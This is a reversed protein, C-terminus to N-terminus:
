EDVGRIFIKGKVNKDEPFEILSAYSNPDILTVATESGKAKSVSWEIDRIIFSGAVDAFDDAVRVLANLVWPVKVGNILASHGAFTPRYEFGNSKRINGEWLARKEATGIGSSSENQFAYVRGERIEDDIAEPTVGQHTEAKNDQTGGATSLTTTSGQAGCVYRNFRRSDDQNMSCRKINNFQGGIQNLAAVGPMSDVDPAAQDFYLVGDGLTYVLLQRKRAYHEIVEWCNQGFAGKVTETQEFPDVSALVAINIREDPIGCNRMAERAIREIGLPLQETLTLAKPLTSDIIDATVDRGGFVVNHSQTDYDVRMTEVFGTLVPRGDVTIKCSDGKRVPYLRSQTGKRLNAVPDSSATFQFSGSASALSKNVTADEFDTYPEGNIQINIM